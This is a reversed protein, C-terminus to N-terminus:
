GYVVDGTPQRGSNLIATIKQAKVASHTVLVVRRAPLEVVEFTRDSMVTRTAVRAFYMPIVERQKAPFASKATGRYRAPM